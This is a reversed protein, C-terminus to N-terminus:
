PGCGREKCSGLAARLSWRGGIRFCILVLFDFLGLPLPHIQKAESFKGLTEKRPDTQYRQRRWTSWVRRSCPAPLLLSRLQTWTHAHRPSRAGLPLAVLIADRNCLLPM